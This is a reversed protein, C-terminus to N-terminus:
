FIFDFNVRSLSSSKNEELQQDKDRAQRHDSSTEPKTNVPSGSVPCIMCVERM